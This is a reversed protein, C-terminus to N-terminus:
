LKGTKTLLKHLCLHIKLWYPFITNIHQFSLVQALAVSPEIQYENQYEFCWPQVDFFLYLGDSGIGLGLPSVIVEDLAARSM